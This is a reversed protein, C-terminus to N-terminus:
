IGKIRAWLDTAMEGRDAGDPPGGQAKILNYSGDSLREVPFNFIFDKESTGDGKFIGYRMDNIQLKGDERKMVAFYDNSFWRLINIVKDDQSADAILDHNKEMKSLKFKPEIDLLSYQGFYYVGKSDVVGTWLINNLISPSTFFRSYEINEAVLTDKMVQTGRYKNYLTFC